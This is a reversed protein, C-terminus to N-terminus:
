LRRLRESDRILFHALEAVLPFDGEDPHVPEVPDLGRVDIGIEFLIVIVPASLFGAIPRVIVILVLIRSYLIGSPRGAIMAHRDFFLVLCPIEVATPQILRPSFGFM